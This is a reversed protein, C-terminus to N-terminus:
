GNMGFLLVCAYGFASLLVSGILPALFPRFGLRKLAGANVNLGLGAMAMAILMYAGAVALDALQEPVIGLSHIGSVALFGFIFWPIPLTRWLGEKRQGPRTGASADQKATRRQAWIGILVAVPVLMAVRTLKVVVAADVASAGGPAAAALVHAIEHLTGGAFVGYGHPTLGLAPYLCTYAVTFLTGLLAIVAAALATEEDRAKLQPAVAVVAAAGCIATGCATLMGLTPAVKLMRALGYVVALAFAINIAAIAASKLGAAAIDSWNLRMGLLIIGARLLRKSSFAIGTEAGEPVGALSRWAMGILMALMLQGAINMYPVAVLEKAALAILLTLGIGAAMGKDITWGFHKTTTRQVTM